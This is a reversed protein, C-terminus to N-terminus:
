SAVSIVFNQVWRINGAIRYEILTSCYLTISTFNGTGEHCFAIIITM